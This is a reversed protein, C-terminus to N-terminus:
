RKAGAQGIPDSRNLTKNLYGNEAVFGGPMFSIDMMSYASM